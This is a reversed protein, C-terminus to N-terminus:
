LYKFGERGIKISYIIYMSTCGKAEAAAALSDFEGWPTLVRRARTSRTSKGLKFWGRYDGQRIGFKGTQRQIEGLRCRYEIRSAWCGYYKAADAVSDFRGDPTEIAIKWANNQKMKQKSEATCEFGFNRGPM